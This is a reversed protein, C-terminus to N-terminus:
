VSTCREHTGAQQGREDEHVDDRPAGVPLRRGLPHPQALVHRVDDRRDHLREDGEDDRDLEVAERHEARRLRPAVGGARARHRHNQVDHESSSASTSHAPGGAQREEGKAEELDHAEADPEDHAEVLGLAAFSKEDGGSNNKGM